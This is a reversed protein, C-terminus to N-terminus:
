PLSVWPEVMSVAKELPTGAQSAEKFFIGTRGCGLEGFLVEKFVSAGLAPEKPKRSGKYTACMRTNCFGPSCANIRMEPHERALIQTLCNMGMKSFGYGVSVISRYANEPDQLNETLQGLIKRLTALDLSPDLLADRHVASLQGMMRTGNGSSTSLISGGRPARELLPLFAATVSAMGEFNVRLTERVAELSFPADDADLMIGANNVLIDLHGDENRSRVVEVAKEISESSSVDLQVAEVRDGYKECLTRAITCGVELERCGLFVYHNSSHEELLIKVVELGIGRNGGTVLATPMQMGTTETTPAAFFPQDEEM